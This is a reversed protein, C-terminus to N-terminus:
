PGVQEPMGPNPMTEALMKDAHVRGRHKQVDKTIMAWLAQRLGEFERKVLGELAWPDMDKFYAGDFDISAHYFKNGEGEGPVKSVDKRVYSSM